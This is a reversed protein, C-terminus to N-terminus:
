FATDISRFEKNQQLKDENAEFFFGDPYIGGDIEIVALQVENKAM